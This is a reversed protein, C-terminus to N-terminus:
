THGSYSVPAPILGAFVLRECALKTVSEIVIERELEAVSVIRILECLGLGFSM